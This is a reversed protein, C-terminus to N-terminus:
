ARLGTCSKAVKKLLNLCERRGQCPSFTATLGTTPTNALESMQFDQVANAELGDQKLTLAM